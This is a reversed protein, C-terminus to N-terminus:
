REQGRWIAPHLPLRAMIRTVPAVPSFPWANSRTNDALPTAVRASTRLGALAVAIAARGCTSITCPSMARGSVSALASRSTSRAISIEDDSGSMSSTCVFKM